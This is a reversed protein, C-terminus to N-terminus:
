NLLSLQGAARLEVEQLAQWTEEPRSFSYRHATRPPVCLHFPSASRVPETAVGYPLLTSDSGYFETKSALIASAPILDVALTLARSQNYCGIGFM